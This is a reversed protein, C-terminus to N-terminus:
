GERREPLLLTQRKELNQNQATQSRTNKSPKDKYFKMRKEVQQETSTDLCYEICHKLEKSACNESPCHLLNDRNTLYKAKSVKESGKRNFNSVYSELKVIVGTGGIFTNRQQKNTVCNFAGVSELFHKKFGLFNKLTIFFCYFYRSPSM